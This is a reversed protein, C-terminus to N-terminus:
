RCSGPQLNLCSGSSSPWSPPSSQRTAVPSSRQFFAQPLKTQHQIQHFSNRRHM